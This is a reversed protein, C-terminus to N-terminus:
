ITAPAPISRSLGRMPGSSTTGAVASSRSFDLSERGGGDRGRRTASRDALLADIQAQLRDVVSRETGGASADPNPARSISTTTVSGVGIIVIVIRHKGYRRQQHWCESHRHQDPFDVLEYLIFLRCCDYEHTVEEDIRSPVPYYVGLKFHDTLAPWRLSRCNRWGLQLRWIRARSALAVIHAVKRAGIDYGEAM